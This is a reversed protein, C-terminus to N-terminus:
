KKKVNEFEEYCLNSKVLTKTINQTDIDNQRIIKLEPFKMEM